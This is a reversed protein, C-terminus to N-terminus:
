NPLSDSALPVLFIIEDPKRMLYKERAYKEITAPDDRLAKLEKRTDEIATKYYDLKQKTANLEQKRERQTLLNNKDFFTIWVVFAILAILYKNKILRMEFTAAPRKLMFGAIFYRYIVCSTAKLNDVFLCCMWWM